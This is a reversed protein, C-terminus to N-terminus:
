IQHTASFGSVFSLNMLKHKKRANDCYAAGRLKFTVRDHVGDYYWLFLTFEGYDLDAM